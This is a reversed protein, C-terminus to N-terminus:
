DALRYSHNILQGYSRHDQHHNTPSM